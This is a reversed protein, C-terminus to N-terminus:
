LVRRNANDGLPLYKDAPQQPKQEAQNQADWQAQLDELTDVALQQATSLGEQAQAMGIQVPTRHNPLDVRAKIKRLFWYLFAASVVDRTLKIEISRSPRPIVKTLKRQPAFVSAGKKGASGAKKAGKGLLTALMM